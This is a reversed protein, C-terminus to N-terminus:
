RTNLDMLAENPTGKKGENIPLWCQYSYGQKYSLISLRSQNERQPYDTFVNLLGKLILSVVNHREFNVSYINCPRGNM